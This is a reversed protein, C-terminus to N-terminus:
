THTYTHTPTPSATGAVPTVPASTPTSTNSPAWTAGSVPIPRIVIPLYVNGSVAVPVIAALLVSMLLLLRM